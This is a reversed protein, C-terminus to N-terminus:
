NSLSDDTEEDYQWVFGSCIKRKGRCAESVGTTVAGVSKAAATITDYSAIHQGTLTSQSIRRRKKQTPEHRVNHDPIKETEGPTAYHWKFGGATRATGQCCSRIASRHAKMAITADSITAYIM